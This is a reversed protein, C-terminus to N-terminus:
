INPQFIQRLINKAHDETKQTKLEEQSLYLNIQDGISFSFNLKDIPWNIEQGDGLKIVVFAAERREIVGKLYDNM